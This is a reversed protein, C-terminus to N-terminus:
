PLRARLTANETRLAENERTLSGDAMVLVEGVTLAEDLLVADTRREAALLAAALRAEDWTRQAFWAVEDRAAKPVEEAESPAGRERAVMWDRLHPGVFRALGGGPLAAAVNQLSVAKDEAAVADAAAYVEAKTLM